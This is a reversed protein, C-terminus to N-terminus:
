RPWVSFNRPGTRGPSTTNASTSTVPISWELRRTVISVRQRTLPLFTKIPSAVTRAGLRLNSQDQAAARPRSGLAGHTDDAVGQEKIGVVTAGGRRDAIEVPNVKAMLRHDVDGAGLRAAKVHGKAHHSEFGVRAFEKGGVGGGESTAPVPVAPPLGAVTVNASTRSSPPAMPVM